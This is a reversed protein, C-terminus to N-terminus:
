GADKTTDSTPFLMKATGRWRVSLPRGDADVAPLAEWLQGRQDTDAIKIVLYENDAFGTSFPDVIQPQM